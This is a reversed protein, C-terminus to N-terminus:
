RRNKRELMELVRRVCDAVVEDRSSDGNKEVEDGCGCDQEAGKKENSVKMFIGLENVELPM